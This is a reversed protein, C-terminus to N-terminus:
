EKKRCMSYVEDALRDYKVLKNNVKSKLKGMYIVNIFHANHKTEGRIMRKCMECPEYKVYIDHKCGPELKTSLKRECCSFMRNGPSKDFSHPDGIFEKATISKMKGNKAYYYKVDNDSEIVEYSEGLINKLLLVLNKYVKKRRLLANKKKTKTVGPYIYMDADFVGSIAAYKKGTDKNYMAGFCKPSFKNGSEKSNKKTILYRGRLDANSNLADYLQRIVDKNYFARSSMRNMSYLMLMNQANDRQIKLLSDDIKKYSNQVISVYRLNDSRINIENFESLDDDFLAVSYLKLIFINWLRDAYEVLRSNRIEKLSEIIFKLRDPIAVFYDFIRLEIDIGSEHFDFLKGEFSEDFFNTFQLGLEFLRNDVEEDYEEDLVKYNSLEIESYLLNRLGVIIDNYDSLDALVKAPNAQQLGNDNLSDCSYEGCRKQWKSNMFDNFLGDCSSDYEDITITSVKNRALNMKGVVPYIETLLSIADENWGIQKELEITNSPKGSLNCFGYRFDKLIYNRENEM